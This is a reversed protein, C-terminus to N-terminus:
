KIVLHSLYLLISSENPFYPYSFIKAHFLAFIFLNEASHERMRVRVCVNPARAMVAGNNIKKASEEKINRSKKEARELRSCFSFINRLEFDFHTLFVRAAASPRVFHFVDLKHRRTNRRSFLRKANRIRGFIIWYGFAARPPPWFQFQLLRFLTFLFFRIRNKCTAFVCWVARAFRAFPCLDKASCNSSDKKKPTKTTQKKDMCIVSNRVRVGKQKHLHNTIREFPHAITLHIATSTFFTEYVFLKSPVLWELFFTNFVVKTYLWKKIYVLIM